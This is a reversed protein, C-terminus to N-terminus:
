IYGFHGHDDVKITRPRPLIVNMPDSPRCSRPSPPQCHGDDGLSVDIQDLPDLLHRTRRSRKPHVRYIYDASEPYSKTRISTVRSSISNGSSSTSSFSLRTEVARLTAFRALGKRGSEAMDKVIM